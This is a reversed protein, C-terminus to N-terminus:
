LETVSTPQRCTPECLPGNPQHILYSPVSWARAALQTGDAAVISASFRDGDAFVTHDASLVAFAIELAGSPTYGLAVQMQPEDGVAGIDVYRIAGADPLLRLTHARCTDNFCVEIRSEVLQPIDAEGIAALRFRAGSDCGAQTCAYEVNDNCGLLLM